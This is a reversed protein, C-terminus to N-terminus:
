PVHSNLFSLRRHQPAVILTAHGDGLVRHKMSARVVDLDLIVVHMLQDLIPNHLQDVTWCILVTRVDEGLCQPLILWLLM